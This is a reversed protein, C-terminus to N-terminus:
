FGTSKAGPKYPGNSYTLDILELKVIIGKKENDSLLHWSVGSGSYIWTKPDGLPITDPYGRWDAYGSTKRGDPFTITIWGRWITINGKTSPSVYTIAPVPTKVVKMAGQADRGGVVFGMLMLAILYRM